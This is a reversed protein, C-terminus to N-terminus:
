KAREVIDFLEWRKHASMPRAEKIKVTDGISCKNEPDHAMFSNRKKYYKKYLPHAIQREVVVVITKDMKNSKVKGQLVRKHSKRIEANEVAINANEKIEIDSM